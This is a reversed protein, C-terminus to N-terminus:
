VDVLRTRLHLHRRFLIHVCISLFLLIFVFHSIAVSLRTPEILTSAQRCQGGLTASVPLSYFGATCSVCGSLGTTTAATGSACGKCAALGTTDAYTGVACASCLTVGSPAYTGVSCQLYSVTPGVITLQGGGGQVFLVQQTLGTGQPLQCTVASDAVTFAVGQCMVGGVFITPLTPGFSSGSITVTDSGARACGTTGPNTNTPCGTVDAVTAALYSVSYAPRSFSSAVLVVVPQLLGAGAPLKCTLQTVSVFVVNSCASSGVSVSLSVQSFYVGTITLISGGATPCSTTTNGVTVACGSVSQIISFRLL